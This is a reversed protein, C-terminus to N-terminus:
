LQAEVGDITALRPGYKQALRDRLESESQGPAGLISGGGQDGILEFRLSQRLAPLNAKPVDLDFSYRKGSQAQYEPVHIMVRDNAPALDHGGDADLLSESSRLAAMIEPKYDALSKRQAATLNEIPSVLLRDGDIALTFGAAQVKQIFTSADM